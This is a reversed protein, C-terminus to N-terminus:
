ERAHFLDELVQQRGAVISFNEAELDERLGGEDFHEPYDLLLALPAGTRIHARLAARERLGAATCLRFWSGYWIKATGM